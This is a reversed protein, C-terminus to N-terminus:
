GGAGQARAKYHALVALRIASSLNGTSRDADIAAVMANVSIGRADAIERLSTWFPAEISVSTPHGAIRVSRKIVADTV